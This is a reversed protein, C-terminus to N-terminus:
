SWTRLCCSSATATHITSFGPVSMRTAVSWLMRLSWSPAGSSLLTGTCYWHLGSRQIPSAATSVWRSLLFWPKLSLLPHTTSKAKLIFVWDNHLNSLWDWVLIFYSLQPPCHRTDAPKEPIDLALCPTSQPRVSLMVAYVTQVNHIAGSEIYGPLSTLM